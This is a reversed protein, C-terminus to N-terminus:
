KKLKSLMHSIVLLPHHLLMRPGSFKMIKKVKEKMEPSYCSNKCNSCFTKTEMYKCNDIRKLSYNLVERCEDCLEGKKHNKRCYLKVMETIVKKERDRKKEVSKKM